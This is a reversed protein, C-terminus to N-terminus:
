GENEMMADDSIEASPEMTAEMTPEMTAEMTTEESTSGGCGSLGAGALAIMAPIAIKTMTKM